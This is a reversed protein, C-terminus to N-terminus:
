VCWRLRSVGGWQLFFFCPLNGEWTSPRAGHTHGAAGSCTVCPVDRSENWGPQNKKILVRFAILGHILRSTLWSKNEGGLLFPARLLSSRGGCKRSSRIRGSLVLVECWCMSEDAFDGQLLQDPLPRM